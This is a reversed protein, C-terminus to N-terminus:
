KREKEEQVADELSKVSTSPKKMQKLEKKLREIELKVDENRCYFIM